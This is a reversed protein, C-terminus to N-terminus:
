GLRERCLGVAVDATAGDFFDNMVAVLGDGSVLQRGTEGSLLPLIKSDCIPKTALIPSTSIGADLVSVIVVDRINTATAQCQILFLPADQPPNQAMENLKAVMTDGTLTANAADDYNSTQGINQLVILRKNENRLDRISKSTMDDSTGSQVDKDQLAANLMDRLDDDSPRPCDGPVGDWRLQIVVIEDRHDQLFQVIDSLFQRYLMGPIAGHQFYWTDELDSIAQLKRYCKAPRFEFYRAGIKLITDLSDKQTIALARIINPAIKNVAGDGIKNFIDLAHPLNIGLVEKIAGTGAHKLLEMATQMSNMGIDHSSPLVMKTFPQCAKEDDSPVVDRMWNEYNRTVTVYCQHQKPLGAQGSGATYFGYVIILDEAFISATQDMNAMGTGGEAKGTVVNVDVNQRTLEQGDHRVVFEFKGSLSFTDLNKKDVELHDLTFEHQGSRTVSQKPVSFEISVDDVVIYAYCLVGKSPMISVSTNNNKGGGRCFVKNFFDKFRNPNGPPKLSPNPKGAVKQSTGAQSTM